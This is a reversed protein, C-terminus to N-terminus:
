TTPGAMPRRTRSPGSTATERHAAGVPLHGLPPPRRTRVLRVEPRRRRDQPGAARRHRGHPAAPQLCKRRAPVRPHPPVRSDAAHLGLDQLLGPVRRDRLQAEPHGLFRRRQPRLLRALAGHRFSLYGHPLRGLRVFRQALHQLRGLGGRPYEHHQGAGRLQAAARPHHHEGRRRHREVRLPGFRRRPDGGRARDDVRPLTRARVHRGAFQLDAPQRAAGALVTRRPRQHAAPDNRLQRLQERCATRVPLEDVRRPQM